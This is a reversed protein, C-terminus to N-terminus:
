KKRGTGSLLVIVSNEDPDNSKITLSASKSGLSRPTFFVSFTCQSGPSVTSCTNTSISFESLPVTISDIKLDATGTNSVIFQKTATKGIAINGFSYSTPSVSIDPVSSADIINVISVSYLRMGSYSGGWKMSHTSNDWTDHIYITQTSADYGVGVVSHGVLNLFVPRGADIEAKYKAFSFGGRAANDTKQSYCDTVTYGRAEYFLKRGYTGDLNSIGYAGAMASCTLQSGSNLTYFSTSGDDNGFASQSTKMFDGIADAWEHETRNDTIYPDELGSLYSVWYDDVSGPADSARGDLGAHSAILPNNPYVSPEDDTWSGWNSDEVLPIDGSNTPGMYIKPFGNLDYYGAIMAGSVASCGFVWRYAPVNALFYPTTTPNPDPRSVSAREREYGKPPVRPGSIMDKEITAGDDYTTAQTSFHENIRQVPGQAVPHQKANNQASVLPVSVAMSFAALMFFVIMWMKKMALGGM